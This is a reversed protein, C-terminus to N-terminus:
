SFGRVQAGARPVLVVVSGLPRVGETWARVPPGASCLHSSLPIDSWGDIMCPRDNMAEPRADEGRVRHRRTSLNEWSKIIGKRHEHHYGAVAGRRM